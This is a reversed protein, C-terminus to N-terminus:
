STSRIAVSGRAWADFVIGRQRKEGALVGTHEPTPPQLNAPPQTSEPSQTEDEDEPPARAKHRSDVGSLVRAIEELQGIAEFLMDELSDLMSTGIFQRLRYLMISLDEDFRFYEASERDTPIRRRSFVRYEELVDEVTRESARRPTEDNGLARTPTIKLLPLLHHLDPM